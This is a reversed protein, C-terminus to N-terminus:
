GPGGEPCNQGAASKLRLRHFAEREAALETANAGAPRLRSAAYIEELRRAHEERTPSPLPLNARMAAILGPEELVRRMAALLADADGPGVRLAGAGARDPMAGLDSLITPLRLETAEDLVLGYTEFGLAPFVAMHIKAAAVDELAFPGHRKVPLGAALRDLEVAFEDSEPPGFLHLEIPRGQWSECLARFAQLLHLCGKRRTVSGWYAFRLTEGDAPMAEDPLAQDPLGERLRPRYPIPLIELAQLDVATNAAIIEATAQNSVLVRGARCLEASFQAAFVQISEQIEGRSEHGFRPVCDLCSEVSLRLECHENDRNVRFCRPCSSYLDHLTVLTKIGLDSAIEVLNSTLRIWQHVHVLDPKEASLVARVKEGVVPHYLKAFHDFYLDDRYIRLVRVGEQEIEELQVESRLEKCGSLVLVQHGAEAQAAVLNRLYLETGGISEPPFGHSIHLIKM